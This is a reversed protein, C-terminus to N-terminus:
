RLSGKLAQHLATTSSPVPVVPAAQLPRLLGILADLLQREGAFDTCRGSMVHELQGALEVADATGIARLRLAFSREPPYHRREHRLPPNPPPM